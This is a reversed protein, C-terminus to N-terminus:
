FHWHHVISSPHLHFEQSDVACQLASLPSSLYVQALMKLTHKTPGLSADLQRCYAQHSCDAGFHDFIQGFLAPHGIKHTVEMELHYNSLTGLTIGKVASLHRHIHATPGGFALVWNLWDKVIATSRRRAGLM